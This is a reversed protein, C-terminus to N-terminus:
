PESGFVALPQILEIQADSLQETHGRGAGRQVEVDEVDEVAAGDGRLVRRERRREPTRRLDHQRAEDLDAGLEVESGPLSTRLATHTGITRTADSVAAAM